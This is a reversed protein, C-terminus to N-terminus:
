KSFRPLSLSFSYKRATEGVEYITAINPHNLRSAIRAETLLRRRAHSDATLGAPLLKLAVSRRLKQDEARFVAGMGGEGLKESIRYHSITQGIM